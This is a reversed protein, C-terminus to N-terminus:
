AMIGILFTMAAVLVLCLHVYNKIAPITRSLLCFLFSITVGVGLGVFVVYPFNSESGLANRMWEQRELGPDNAPTGFSYYKWFSTSITALFFVDRTRSSGTRRQRTGVYGNCRIHAYSHRMFMVYAKAYNPGAM